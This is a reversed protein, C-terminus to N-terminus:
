ETDINKRGMVELTNDYWLLTASARGEICRQIRQRPSMPLDQWWGPHTLVQLSHDTKQTLVDELRRHRWYGNSDSVYGVSVQFYKAYTNVLGAYEYSQLKKLLEPSPNHFSFVSIKSEFCDELFCSERRLLKELQIKNEVQNVTADFHLGLHHGMSLIKRVCMASSEELLNYFNSQLHFFYTSQIGEEKEIIALRLACQPSLDVDHRWLVFREERSFNTYHRFTYSSKALSLLRRYNDRTFDTFNYKENSM